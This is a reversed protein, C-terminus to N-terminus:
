SYRRKQSFTSSSARSRNRIGMKVRRVMAVKSANPISPLTITPPIPVTPAVSKIGITDPNNNLNKLAIKYDSLKTLYDDVVQLKRKVFAKQKIVGKKFVKDARRHVREQIGGYLNRKSYVLSTDIDKLYNRREVIQLRLAKAQKIDM